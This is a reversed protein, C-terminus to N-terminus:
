SADALHTRVREALTMPDFPKVIVAIAGLAMLRAQEEAQARATMFIVPPPPPSPIERLRALTGPGDLGPMMVDLMVVDPRWGTALLDLAEVGSGVSRVNITPDIMLSIAVVERIDPEDDIHLVDLM